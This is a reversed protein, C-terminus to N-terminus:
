AVEYSARLHSSPWPACWQLLAFCCFCFRWSSRWGVASKGVAPLVLTRERPARRSRLRNLAPLDVVGRDLIAGALIADLVLAIVIAILLGM